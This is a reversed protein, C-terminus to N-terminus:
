PSKLSQVGSLCVKTEEARRIQLGRLVKGGAYVWRGLENCAGIRDGANLKKLLTSSKFNAAGVNYTFSCYADLEGQSLPVKTYRLVDDCHTKADQKLLLLCEKDSKWDDMKVNGTHGYCITPIGVPDKYAFNRLGEAGAILSLGAASIVTAAIRAKM